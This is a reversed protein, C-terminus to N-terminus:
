ETLPSGLPTVAANLGADDAVDVVSVSVALAVAIVPRVFMVTLPVLPEKVDDTLIATVTLGANVRDADGLLMFTFWPKLALEAMETAGAGPKVPLTANEALPRGLPTVANNLGVDDVDDVVTVKVALSIAAAPGAVIVIVPVLPANTSVVVM